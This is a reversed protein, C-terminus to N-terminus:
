SPPLGLDHRVLNADTGVVDYDHIFQASWTSSSFLNVSSLGELDGVVAGAAAILTHVDTTTNAPWAYDTLTTDLQKLASIAPQAAQEAEAGTESSPWAKAADAFSTMAANGKAAAAVYIAAAKVTPSITTTTTTPATTTTSPLSGPPTGSSGCGGLAFAGVLLGIIAIRKM